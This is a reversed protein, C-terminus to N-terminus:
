RKRDFTKHKILRKIEYKSADSDEGELIFSSESNHQKNYSDSDTFSKLQTVSVVSHILMILSFKLRYILSEIKKLIKFFKVRQQILKDNVDSITYDHHLRLFMMDGKSIHVATYSADYKVKVVINIFAIVDEAQERKM